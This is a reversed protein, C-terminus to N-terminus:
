ASKYARALDPMGSMVLLNEANASEAARTFNYSGTLVTADDIILVKNIAVMHEEDLWCPIGAAKILPAATFKDTANSKDLIVECDVGRKHADALALAVVQSTFTYGQLRISKKAKGLEAVVRAECGGDPSFLVDIRPPPTAAANNSPLVTVTPITSESPAALVASM